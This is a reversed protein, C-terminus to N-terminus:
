SKPFQGNRISDNFANIDAIRKEHLERAAASNEGAVTARYKLAQEARKQEAPSYLALQNMPGRYPEGTDTTIFSEWYLDVNPWPCLFGSGHLYNVIPAMAGIVAFVIFAKLQRSPQFEVGYRKATTREQRDMEEVVDRAASRVRECVPNLLEFTEQSIAHLRAQIGKRMECFHATMEEKSLPRPPAEGTALAKEISVQQDLYRGTIKTWGYEALKSQMKQWQEDLAALAKQVDKDAFNGGLRERVAEIVAAGVVPRDPLTVIHGRWHSRAFYIRDTFKRDFDDASNPLRAANYGASASSGSASSGSSQAPRAPALINKISSLMSM